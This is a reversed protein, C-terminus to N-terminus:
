CCEKGIAKAIAQKAMAACNQLSSISVTHGLALSKVTYDFQEAAQQLAELLEPASSYDIGAKHTTAGFAHARNRTYFYAESESDLIALLKGDPNVVLCDLRSGERPTHKTNM